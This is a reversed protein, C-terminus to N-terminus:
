LMTRNCWKPGSQVTLLLSSLCCYVSPKRQVKNRASSINVNPSTKEFTCGALSKDSRTGAYNYIVFFSFLLGKHHCLTQRCDGCCPQVLLLGMAFSGPEFTHVGMISFCFWGIRGWLCSFWSHWTCNDFIKLVQKLHRFFLGRDLWGSFGVTEGVIIM